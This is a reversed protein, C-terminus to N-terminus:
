ARRRHRSYEARLGEDGLIDRAEALVRQIEELRERVAPDKIQDYRDPQFERALRDYAQQVEYSTADLGVGLVEFYSASRVQEYKEAVRGLDIALQVEPSLDAALGRVAIEVFGGLVLAHMVQLGTLPDCGCEFLLEEVNRMGDVAQALRRERATLAFESLDPAGEEVPRLLTAPGGMRELLRELLYKRRIGETMVALPSRSLAVREEQPVQAALLEYRGEFGGCAAYVVEEVREQVLPFLEAPKLFTREVMLLAARRTGLPGEARMQRQQERTLLGRRHAFAELQEDQSSSSAGCLRGEEWYLSRRAGGQHLRLEGTWRARHCSAVLRAPEAASLDGEAPLDRPAAARPRPTEPPAAALPRAGRPSTPEDIDDFLRAALASASDPGAAGPPRLRAEAEALLAAADREPRAPASEEVRPSPLIPSAASIPPAERRAQMEQRRLEAAQAMADAKRRAELEAQERAAQLERRAALSKLTAATPPAPLTPRLETPLAAKVAPAKPVSAEPSPGAAGDLRSRLLSLLEAGDTPRSLRLGEEGLPGGGLVVLPRDPKGRALAEHVAGSDGGQLEGSLVVAAPQENQAASVADAGNTAVLVEFGGRLLVRKLAAIAGIEDEVLLVRPM